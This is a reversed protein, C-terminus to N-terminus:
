LEKTIIIIKVRPNVLDPNLGCGRLARVAPIEPSQTRGGDDTKGRATRYNFFDPWKNPLIEMRKSIISQM